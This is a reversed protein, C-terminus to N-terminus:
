KRLFHFFDELPQPRGGLGGDIIGNSQVMKSLEVHFQHMERVFFKLKQNLSGKGGKAFDQNLINVLTYSRILHRSIFYNTKKKIALEKQKQLM